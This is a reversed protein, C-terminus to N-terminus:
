FLSSQGIELELNKKKWIEILRAVPSNNIIEIVVKQKQEIPNYSYKALHKSYKGDYYDVKIRQERELERLRRGCTEPSYGWDEALVFLSVKKFWMGENKELYLLLNHKLTDKM